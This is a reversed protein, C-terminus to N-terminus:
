PKPGLLHANLGHMAETKGSELRDVCDEHGEMFCM